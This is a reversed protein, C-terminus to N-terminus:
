PADAAVSRVAVEFSDNSGTWCAEDQKELITGATHLAVERWIEFARAPDLDSEEMANFFAAIPLLDPYFAM